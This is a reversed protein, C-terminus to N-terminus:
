CGDQIAGGQQGRVRDRNKGVASGFRQFALVAFTDALQDYLQKRHRNSLPPDIRAAPEDGVQIAKRELPRQRRLAQECEGVEQFPGDEVLQRQAVPDARAALRPRDHRLQYAARRDIQEGGVGIAHLKLRRFGGDDIAQRREIRPHHHLRDEAFLELAGSSEAM